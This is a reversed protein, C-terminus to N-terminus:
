DLAWASLSLGFPSLLLATLAVSLVALTALLAREGRSSGSWEQELLHGSGLASAIHVVYMLPWGVLAGASRVTQGVTGTTAPWLQAPDHAGSTLEDGSLRDLDNVYYPVLVGAVWLLALLAVAALWIAPMRWSASREVSREEVLPSMEPGYPGRLAQSTVSAIPCRPDPSVHVAGAVPVAMLSGPSRTWASMGLATVCRDLGPRRVGTRRSAPTTATAALRM